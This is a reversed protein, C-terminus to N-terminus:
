LPTGSLFSKVLYLGREGQLEPVFHGANRITAFTLKDYETVWGGVQGAVTYPRIGGKTETLPLQALWARTGVSPVIADVDGSFVLIKLGATFLFEYVPLMSSLLDFRSYNVISSCGSWQISANAHIAAKVSPNNLYATTKDDRCPDYDLACGAANNSGEGLGRTPLSNYTSLNDGGSGCVDVYVDYINIGGLLSFAQNTWGDCDTPPAGWVVAKGTINDRLPTFGLPRSIAPTAGASAEVEWDASGRVAGRNVASALLPGVDSMNCTALVGDRTKQDIMTRSYWFDLAGTNDLEAVTWANGVLFGQLNLKPNIGAANGRVIAAAETPVYHGGTLTIHLPSIPTFKSTAACRPVDRIIHSLPACTGYSEGSLYLERGAYQPYRATFGLLFQYVDEAAQSDGVTYDDSDASWSFGVGAPQEIFIVNAVQTWTWINPTLSLSGDKNPFFPGFESFLGGSLGSCGPGGNTWLMLPATSPSEVSEVLWFFLNREHSVNVTIYGAYM